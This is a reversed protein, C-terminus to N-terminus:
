FMSYWETIGLVDVHEDQYDLDCNLMLEYIEALEKIRSNYNQHEIKRMGSIFVNNVGWCPNHYTNLIILGLKVRCNKHNYIESNLTKDEEIYRSFKQYSFSRKGLSIYSMINSKINEDMNLYGECIVNLKIQNGRIYKNQIKQIEFFLKLYRSNHFKYYKDYARRRYIAQLEPDHTQRYLLPREIFMMDEHNLCAQLISSTESIM